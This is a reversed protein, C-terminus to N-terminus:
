TKELTLKKIDKILYFINCLKVVQLSVTYIQKNKLVFYFKDCVRLQVISM